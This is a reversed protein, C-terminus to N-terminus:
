VEPAWEPRYDPHDAYSLALLFLVAHRGDQSFSETDAMVRRKADVEALARAPTYRDLFPGVKAGLPDGRGEAWDDVVDVVNGAERAVQEDEDLRATLFDALSMDM